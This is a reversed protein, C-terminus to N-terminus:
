LSLHETQLFDKPSVGHYKKFAKTFSSHNEYGLLHFIESPRENKTRMLEAAIKMRQQLFWNIPSTNYIKEFNRKFTSPSVNCLFALEDVTLNNTINREVIIKIEQEGRLKSQSGQFSLLIQPYKELLHLMLEEFKLQKMERSIVDNRKLLIQLSSIYHIIFEDKKLSIYHNLNSGKKTKFKNVQDAHKTYFDFLIKDDFFILVSRFTESSLLDVTAICNGASLFHIEQDNANVTREAFHMKKQGSMVLSIANKTLVSRGKLKGKESTYERIIIEQKNNSQDSLLDDPLNFTKM